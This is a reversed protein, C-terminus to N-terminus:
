AVHRWNLRKCISYTGRQIHGLESVIYIGDFIPKWIM